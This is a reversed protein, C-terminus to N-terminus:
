KKGRTIIKKLTLIPHTIAFLCIGKKRGYKVKYKMIKQDLPDKWSSLYHHIAYTNETIEMKEDNYRNPNFYESPFVVTDKITQLKNNMILGFGCLIETERECVTKFNLEGNDLVFTDNNYSDLMMKCIEDGANAGRILGSAVASESEFGVFTDPLDDIPKLLEVDTDMYIGGLNYLIWFRCYDSVFAWKKADYAQEVYKCCHIDFNSENWETIEYDPCFKKWSKICDDIKPSKKSTGFWCYHIVKRM